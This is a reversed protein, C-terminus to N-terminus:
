TYDATCTERGILEPDVPMIESHYRCIKDRDLGINGIYEDYTNTLEFVAQWVSIMSASESLCLPVLYNDFRIGGHFVARIEPDVAGM